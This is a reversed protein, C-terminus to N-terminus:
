NTPHNQSLHALLTQSIDQLAKMQEASLVDTFCHKVEELQRKSGQRITQRGLQSLRIEFGRADEPCERREVLERKEMRTIQHSLRSTEWGLFRCLERARTWVTPSQSIAILVSYDADSLGSHESLRKALHSMLQVRMTQFDRWAALQEDPIFQGAV